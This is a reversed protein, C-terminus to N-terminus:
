HDSDHEGGGGGGGGRQKAPQQLLPEQFLRSSLTFINRSSHVNPTGKRKLWRSGRILLAVFTGVLALIFFGILVIIFILWSQKHSQDSDVFIKGTTNITRTEGKYPECITNNTCTKESFNQMNIIGEPLSFCRSMAEDVRCFSSEMILATHATSNTLLKIWDPLDCRSYNYDKISFPCSSFKMLINKPYSLSENRLFWGLNSVM